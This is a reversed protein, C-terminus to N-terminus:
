LQMRIYNHSINIALQTCFSTYKEDRLKIVRRHFIHTHIINNKRM